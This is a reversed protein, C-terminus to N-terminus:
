NLWPWICKSEVHVDTHENCNSTIWDYISPMADSWCNTRQRRRNPNCVLTPLQPLQTSSNFHRCKTLRSKWNTMVTLLKVQTFMKVNENAKWRSTSQNSYRVAPSSWLIRSVTHCPYTYMTENWSPHNENKNSKKNTHVVSFLTCSCSLWTTFPIAVIELIENLEFNTEQKIIIFQLINTLM